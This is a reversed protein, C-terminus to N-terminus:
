VLATSARFRVRHQMVAREEIAEKPIVVHLVMAVIHAVEIKGLNQLSKELLEEERV